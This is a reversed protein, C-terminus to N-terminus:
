TENHISWLDRQTHELPAMTYAQSTAIYIRNLDLTDATHLDQWQYGCCAGLDHRALQVLLAAAGVCQKGNRGADRAAIFWWVCCADVQTNRWSSCAFWTLLM